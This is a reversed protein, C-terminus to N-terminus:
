YPFDVPGSGVSVWQHTTFTRLSEDGGLWGRGSHKRGGFPVNAEDHITGHNLHVMGADLQHALQVGRELNSTHVAASLGYPSDNALAVAEQDTDFAMVCAVPGFLERRAVEMDPTVDTLVAPSFLAGTVDGRLVATAGDRLARDVAGNLEAAQKATILPGLVTNPDRPDGVPLSAIKAVYRDLFEPYLERHVLVRNASMCVQGQHTFRSFVAARVALDLDADRLVILAGNGGMELVTEKNHRAAVEGVHLGVAASGTFSLLRPVPHELFADKIEAIDTVVVNLLGPPLGAAEFIEGVLTGGVIPTEEHCKLVVGNGTALAPAVSKLGLLLPFNSPSIVGVVGIPKRYVRNERGDIQSPLIQGSARFPLTAAERLVDLALGIEFRAKLATGGLEDIITDVIDDAHDEVYRVACEFVDRKTYPNVQAWDGQAGRAAEYADAVDAVSATTFEALLAGDYPNRDVLVKNGAGDRWKGGILQQLKM